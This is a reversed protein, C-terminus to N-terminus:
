NYSYEIKGGLPMQAINDIIAKDASEALTFVAIRYNKVDTTLIESPITKVVVKESDANMTFADTSMAFFNGSISRVVGHYKDEYANGSTPVCNDQLLAIGLDYKGTESVKVTASIVINEGEISSTAKIGTRAPHAYLQEKVYDQIDPVTKNTYGKDLSYIAYPLVDGSSHFRSLLFNALDQTSNYPVAFEDEKHFELVISHSETYDNLKGLAETMAPCYQCWTGTLRYIAVNKHFIEYKGRNQVKISITNECPEGLYMASVTYDGNIISTFVNPNSVTMGSIYEDTEQIHFSTNRLYDSGTLELGNADKISFTAADKGDAEIATKDVSLRYPKTPETDKNGLDDPDVQGSCGCFMSALVMIAPFLNLKMIKYLNEILIIDYIVPQSRYIGSCTQM